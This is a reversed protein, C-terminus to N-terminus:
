IGTLLSRRWVILTGLSLSLLLITTGDDPTTVRFSTITGTVSVYNNPEAFCNCSSAYLLNDGTGYAFFLYNDSSPEWGPGAAAAFEFQYGSPIPILYWDSSYLSHFWFTGDGVSINADLRSLDHTFDVTGGFTDGVTISTQPPEEGARTIETIVGSLYITDAYLNSCLAIAGAMAAITRKNM